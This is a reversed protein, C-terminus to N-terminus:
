VSKLTWPQALARGHADGLAAGEQAPVRPPRLLRLAARGTTARARGLAAPAAAEGVTRAAGPWGVKPRATV